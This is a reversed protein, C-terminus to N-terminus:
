ILENLILSHLNCNAAVIQSKAFWDSGGTYDSVRAGAELAIVIGAAADWPSLGKEWYGDLRGCAVSCLDLSASGDCRLSRVKRIFRAWEQTNNDPNEWADYPFGSGLVASALETTESTHLIEGNCTAGEGVQASFLEEQIPNYVVGLVLQGNVELGISVAVWPYRRIFNSTGDLPDVIWRAGSDAHEEGGEEALIGITPFAARLQQRILEECCQDVETIPNILSGKEGVRLDSKKWAKRIIEGAALATEIAIRKEDM